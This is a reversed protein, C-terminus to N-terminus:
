QKLFIPIGCSVLVVEDADKAITQNCLGVLDRYFRSEASEPIIGSGIENTVFLIIGQHKRCASLLRRCEAQVNEESLSAGSERSHHLLNNVWLTLCDILVVNYGSNATLVATLDRQEEITRWGKGSRLRIHKDIRANIEDDIRPCTAIYLKVGNDLHEARNEAYSSKGSRSGGTILIIRNM